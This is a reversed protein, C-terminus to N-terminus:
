LTQYNEKIETCIEFKNNVVGKIDIYLNNYDANKGELKKINLRDIYRDKFSEFDYRKFYLNELSEGYAINASGFLVEVKDGIRAFYLKCHFDNKNIYDSIVTNEL